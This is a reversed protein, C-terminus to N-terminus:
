VKVGALRGPAEKKDKVRSTGIRGELALEPTMEKLVVGQLVLSLLAQSVEKLLGETKM